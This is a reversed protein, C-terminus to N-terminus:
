RLHDTSTSAAARIHSARASRVARLEVRCEGLCARRYASRARRSAFADEKTVVRLHPQYSADRAGREILWPLIPYLM